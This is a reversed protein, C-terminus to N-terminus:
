NNRPICQGMSSSYVQDAACGTTEVNRPICQGLSSSYVEDSKCNQTHAPAAVPAEPTSAVGNGGVATGAKTLIWAQGTLNACEALHPQNNNPGGNFIDLCM